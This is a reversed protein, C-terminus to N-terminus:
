WLSFAFRLPTDLISVVFANTVAVLIVSLNFSGFTNVSSLVSSSVLESNHEDRLSLSPVDFLGEPSFSSSSLREFCTSLFSFSSDSSM